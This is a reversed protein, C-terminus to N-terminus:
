SAVKIRVAGCKPCAYLTPNIKYAYGQRDSFPTPKSWGGDKGLLEVDAKFGCLPTNCTMM